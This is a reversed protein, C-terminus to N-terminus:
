WMLPNFGDTPPQPCAVKKLLQTRSPVFNRTIVQIPDGLRISRKKTLGALRRTHESQALFDSIFKNKEEPQLANGVVKFAFHFRPLCPQTANGCPVWDNTDEQPLTHLIKKWASTKEDVVPGILRALNSM